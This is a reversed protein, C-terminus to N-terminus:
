ILEKLPLSRRKKKITIIKEPLRLASAIYVIAALNLANSDM